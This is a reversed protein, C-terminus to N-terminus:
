EIQCTKGAVEKRLEGLAPFNSIDVAEHGTKLLEWFAEASPRYAIDRRRAAVIDLSHEKITSGAIPVLLGKGLEEEVLYDPMHGWAMGSMILSKKTVQDGVSLKPADDVVFYDKTATHTATCRIVCQLYNLLDDFSLQRKNINNGRFFGPAAVPVITVKGLLVAEIASDFLDVHHFIIDAQGDFLREQPGMLNEQSLNLKVGPCTERFYKLKTTILAPPTVDGVVINLQQGSGGQLMTIRNKLQAYNNLIPQSAKHFESGHQTLVVRYGSRDFLDFGLEKELKKVTAIICPHSRHLAESAAKFSGKNVIMDVTFLQRISIHM